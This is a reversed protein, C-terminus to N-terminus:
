IKGDDDISRIFRAPVGAVVSTPPVDERVLSSAGVIACEGVQVGPLITTNAGIFCGSGLTVPDTRPPMYEQLPHSLYGVNVHTLVTVREALTVFEGFQIREALDFLCEEGVFSYPGVSLVQFGGRYINFFTCSQLVTHKGIQAGFLRLFMARIPPLVLGCKLIGGQAQGVAYRLVRGPGVLRVADHM